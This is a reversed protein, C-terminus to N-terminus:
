LLWSSMLNRFKKRKRLVNITNIVQRNMDKFVVLPPTISQNHLMNNRQQWVSYVLSQTVLMKLVPPVSSAPARAWQMLDSWSTFRPVRCRIRLQIESWVTM